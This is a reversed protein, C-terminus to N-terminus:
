QELYTHESVLVEQLPHPLQRLAREVVDFRDFDGVYIAERPIQTLDPLPVQRYFLRDPLLAKYLTSPPLAAFFLERFHDATFEPSQFYVQCDTTQWRQIGLALLAQTKGAGFPGSITTINGTKSIRLRPNNNFM